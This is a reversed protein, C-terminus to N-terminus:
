MIVVFSDSCILSIYIVEITLSDELEQRVVDPLTVVQLRQSLNSDSNASQDHTQINQNSITANSLLDEGTLNGGSLDVCFCTNQIRAIIKDILIIIIYILLIPERCTFWIYIEEKEGLFMELLIGMERLLLQLDLRRCM